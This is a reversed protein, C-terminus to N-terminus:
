RFAGLLGRKQNSQDHNAHEVMSRVEAIAANLAAVTQALEGLQATISDLTKQLKLHHEGLKDISETMKGQKRVLHEIQVDVAERRFHRSLAGEIIETVSVDGSAKAQLEKDLDPHLRVTRQIRRM